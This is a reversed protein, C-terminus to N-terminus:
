HTCRTSEERMTQINYIKIYGTNNCLNCVSSPVQKKYNESNKIQTWAAQMDQLRFKASVKAENRLDLALNYVRLLEESPIQLTNQLYVSWSNAVRDFNEPLKTLEHDFVMLLLAKVHELYSIM